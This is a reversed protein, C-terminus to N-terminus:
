LRDLIVALGSGQFNPSNMGSIPFWGMQVSFFYILVLGIIYVPVSYGVITLVQVANDFKSFKKVACFIGLPITIGLAVVTAFINIIITNKLPEGIIDIVDDKYFTSYGLDGQLLNGMWKIYRVPIPDDLGLKDRAAQYRIQFQEDSVKGRLSQVQNLARDGPTNNFLIFMIISVIFFVGVMYVLRKGVYKLM